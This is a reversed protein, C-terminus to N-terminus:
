LSYEMHSSLSITFFCSVMPTQDDQEYLSSKGELSDVSGKKPVLVVEFRPTKYVEWHIPQLSVTLYPM